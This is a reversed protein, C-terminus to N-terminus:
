TVVEQKLTNCMHGVCKGLGLRLPRTCHSYLCLATFSSLLPPAPMSPIHAQSPLLTAVTFFASFCEVELGGMTEIVNLAFGLLIELTSLIWIYDDM